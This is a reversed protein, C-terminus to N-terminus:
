VVLSLLHVEFALHCQEGPRAPADGQGARSCAGLDDVCPLVHGEMIRWAKQRALAHLISGLAKRM